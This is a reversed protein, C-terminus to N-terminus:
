TGAHPVLHETTNQLHTFFCCTTFTYALARGLKSQAVSDCQQYGIPNLESPMMSLGYLMVIPFLIRFSLSNHLGIKQKSCGKAYLGLTMFPRDQIRM